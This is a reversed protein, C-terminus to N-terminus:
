VSVTCVSPEGYPGKRLNSDLWCARFAYDTPTDEHLIYVYPSHTDSDLDKWDAEHEPLGGRHYQIHVGKTGAPRANEHENHPNFGFHIMVQLPISWDLELLPRPIARISEPDTATPQTDPVTIGADARDADTMAPDAQLRKVDARTIAVADSFTHKKLQVGARYATEKIGCEEYATELATVRTQVDTIEALTFGHDAGHLTMWAAFQKLWDLLEAENRPLYDHGPM